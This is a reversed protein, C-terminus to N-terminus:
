EALVARILTLADEGDWEAPGLLRGLAEDVEWAATDVQPSLPGHDHGAGDVISFYMTIM